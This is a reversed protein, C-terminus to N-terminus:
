RNGASCVFMEGQERGEPVFEEAGGKERKKKVEEDRKTVTPNENNEAGSLFIHLSIESRM